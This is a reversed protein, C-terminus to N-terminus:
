TSECQRLNSLINIATSGCVIWYGSPVIPACSLAVSIRGMIGTEFVFTDVPFVFGLFM